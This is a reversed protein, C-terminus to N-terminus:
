KAQRDPAALRAPPVFARRKVVGLGEGSTPRKTTPLQLPARRLPAIPLRKGREFKPVRIPASPKPPEPAVSESTASPSTEANGVADESGADKASPEETEVVESREYPDVSGSKERVLRAIRQAVSQKEEMKSEFAAVQRRVAQLAGSLPPLVFCRCASLALSRPNLFPLDSLSSRPLFARVIVGRAQMRGHM